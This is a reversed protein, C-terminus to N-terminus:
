EKHALARRQRSAEYLLIGGAVSANLSGLSGSMPIQVLTDCTESVLRRLGWGESGIVLALPRTLDADHLAQGEGAAAGVVWLGAAKLESLTRSLNTVRAIGLHSTAGASAKVVVATVECSKDKPVVLGHAGLALASRVLSGLNHPDQVQDLALILPAEARERAVAVLDEVGVYGFAGVAAVVGQHPVDGVLGALTRRQVSAVPIGQREAARVLDELREGRGAAVFLREVDRPRARLAERVPHRGYIYPGERV